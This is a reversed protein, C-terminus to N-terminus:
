EHSDEETTRPEMLTAQGPPVVDVIAPLDEKPITHFGYGDDIFPGPDGSLTVVVPLVGGWWSPPDTRHDLQGLELENRQWDRPKDVRDVYEKLQRKVAGIDDVKPKCEIIVVGRALYAVEGNNDPLLDVSKWEIIADAFCDPKYARTLKAEIICSVVEKARGDPLFREPSRRVLEQLADHAKM